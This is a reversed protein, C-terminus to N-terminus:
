KLLIGAVVLLDVIVFLANTFVIVRERHVLGYATWIVASVAFLSWSALSVGEISKKIWVEYIQPVVMAPGTVGGIYMARDFWKKWRIPYRVPHIRRAALHHGTHHM